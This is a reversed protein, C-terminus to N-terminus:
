LALCVQNNQLICAHAIGQGPRSYLLVDRGNPATFVQTSMPANSYALQLHM